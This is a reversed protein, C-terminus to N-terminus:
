FVPLAELEGSSPWGNQAALRKLDIIRNQTAPHTAFFEKARLPTEGSTLGGMKEFFETAGNVHGYHGYVAALGTEDSEREQERNFSLVTLLGFKSLVGTAASDGGAGLVAFVLSTILGRGLAVIPHRHKVHGIEHAIVMALGNESDVAEILGRFIIINGGLTALANVTESDSYHATITMGEPLDQQAALEDTLKQLWQQQEPFEDTVFETAVRNSLAKEWSFPVLPGLWRLAFSILFVLVVLLLTVGLLLVIFDKLPHERSTNIGEPLKPNQYNM